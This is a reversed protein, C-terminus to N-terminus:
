MELCLLYLVQGFPRSSRRGLLRGLHCGMALRGCFSLLFYGLDDRKATCLKALCALGM